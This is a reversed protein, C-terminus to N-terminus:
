GTLYLNIDAKVILDKIMRLNTKNTSVMVLGTGFFQEITFFLFLIM